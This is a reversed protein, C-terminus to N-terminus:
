LGAMPPTKQKKCYDHTFVFVVLGTAFCWFFGVAIAPWMPIMTMM